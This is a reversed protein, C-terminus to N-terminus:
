AGQFNRKPWRGAIERYIQAGFETFAVCGTAPDFNVIGQSALQRLMDDTVFNDETPPQGLWLIAESLRESLEM